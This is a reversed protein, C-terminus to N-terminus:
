KGALAAALDNDATIEETARKTATLQRDRWTTAATAGSGIAAAIDSGGAGAGYEWNTPSGNADLKLVAERTGFLGGSGISVSYLGSLQPLWVDDSRSLTRTASEDADCTGHTPEAACPSVEVSARVARRYYVARTDAPRDLDSGDGAFANLLGPDPTLSVIFGHAGPLAGFANSVAAGTPTRGSRDVFWRATPAADLLYHLETGVPRGGTDIFHRRQPDFKKAGGIPAKLTVTLAALLEVEEDRLVTLYRTTATPVGGAVLKAEEGDIARRVDGLRDLAASIEHTCVLAPQPAPARAKSVGAAAAAAVPVAGAIAPAVGWSAVTAATTLVAGLVPGGQGESSADYSQLLGDPGVALKTSRKSLFGSRADVILKTTTDPGIESGIKIVTIIRPKEGVKTPCFDIRQTVSAAVSGTPLFYFFQRHKPDVSQAHASGPTLAMTAVGALLLRIKM